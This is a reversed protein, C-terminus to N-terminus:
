AIAWAASCFSALAQPSDLAPSGAQLWALMRRDADSLPRPAAPAAPARWLRWATRPHLLQALLSAAELKLRGGLLRLRSRLAAAGSGAGAQQQQQQQQALHPPPSLEALEACWGSANAQRAQAMCALSGYLQTTLPVFGLRASAAAEERLAMLQALQPAGMCPPAQEEEAAAAAQQVVAAARAESASLQRRRESLLGLLGRVFREKEVDFPNSAQCRDAAAAGDSSGGGSGSSSGATGAASTNCGVLKRAMSPLANVEVLWPRESADLLFDLGLVEFSGGQFGPLGAAARRAAPLGAALAAAVGAQLRRRLRAAAQPGGPGAALHAELQGLSWPAAASRDQTWLNVILSNPDGAPQQQQRQQQQQQQQAQQRQESGFVVVGGGWLHARAPAAGMLVAWLRRASPPAPHPAAM